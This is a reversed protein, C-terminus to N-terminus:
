FGCRPQGMIFLYWSLERAESNGRWCLRSGAKKWDLSFPIEERATLAASRMNQLARKMEAADSSKEIEALNKAQTQM